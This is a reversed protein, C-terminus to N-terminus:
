DMKRFAAATQAAEAPRRGPRLKYAVSLSAVVVMLVGITIWGVWPNHQKTKFRDQALCSAGQDRVQGANAKVVAIRCFRHPGVLTWGHYRPDRAGFAAKM